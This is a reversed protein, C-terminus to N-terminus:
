NYTRVTSLGQLEVLLPRDSNGTIRAQQLAYAGVAIVHSVNVLSSEICSYYGRCYVINGAHSM